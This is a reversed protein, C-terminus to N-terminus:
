YGQQEHRAELRARRIQRLGDEVLAEYAHGDQVDLDLHKTTHLDYYVIAMEIFSFSDFGRMEAIHKFEEKFRLFSGAPHLRGNSISVQNRFPNSKLGLLKYHLRSKDPAAENLARIVRATYTGKNHVIVELAHLASVNISDLNMSFTKRNKNDTQVAITCHIPRKRLESLKAKRKLNDTHHRSM